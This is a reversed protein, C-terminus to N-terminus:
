RKELVLNVTCVYVGIVPRYIKMNLDKKFM